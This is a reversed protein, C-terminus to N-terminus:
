FIFNNGRAVITFMSIIQHLARMKNDSMDQDNERDIKDEVEDNEELIADNSTNNDYFLKPDFNFLVGFFRLMVEHEPTKTWSQRLDNADSFKSVLDFHTELLSERLLM